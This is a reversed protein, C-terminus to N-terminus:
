EGEAEAAQDFRATARAVLFHPPIDLPALTSFAIDHAEAPDLGLARLTLAAVQEPYDPPAEGTILRAITTLAFGSILDLALEPSILTFRKAVVGAELHPPLYEYILNNPNALHIGTQTVFGGLLPFSRAQHLYLRIGHAVRVAPDALPNVAGEISLILENSLEEAVAHLLEENTRFYKYFTGQSVEAKSIVEQIVSAGVGKDVFVALASEVLRARMRERREAAVRVRHDPQKMATVTM